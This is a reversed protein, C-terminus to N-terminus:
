LNKNIIMRFVYRGVFYLTKLPQLKLFSQQFDKRSIASIAEIMKQTNLITDFQKILHSMNFVGHKM